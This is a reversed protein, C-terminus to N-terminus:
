KAPLMAIAFPLLQHGMVASEDNDGDDAGVVDCIGVELMAGDAVGDGAGDDAGDDAGDCIGM